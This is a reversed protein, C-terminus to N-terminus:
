PSWVVTGCRHILHGGGTGATEGIEILAWRARRNPPIDDMTVFQNVSGNTVTIVGAITVDALKFVQPAGESMPCADDTRVLYLYGNMGYSPPQGFDDGKVLINVSGSPPWPEGPDAAFAVFITNDRGIGSLDNAVHLPGQGVIRCSVAAVAVAILLVLGLRRRAIAGIM